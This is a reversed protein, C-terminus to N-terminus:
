EVYIVLVGDIICSQIVKFSGFLIKIEEQQTSLYEFWNKTKHRLSLQGEYKLGNLLSKVMM